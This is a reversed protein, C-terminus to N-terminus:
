ARLHAVRLFGFAARLCPASSQMSVPENAPDHFKAVYPHCTLPSGDKAKTSSPLADEASLRNEPNFRRCARPRSRFCREPDNLPWLQNSLFKPMYHRDHWCYALWHREMLDIADKSAQPYLETLPKQKM